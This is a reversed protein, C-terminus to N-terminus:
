GAREGGGQKIDCHRLIFNGHCDEHICMHEFNFNINGTQIAIQVCFANM